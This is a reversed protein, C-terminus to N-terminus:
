VDAPAPQPSLRADRGRRAATSGGVAAAPAAPGGAHARLALRERLPAGRLLADGLRPAALPSAVPRRARRDALRLRRRAGPAARRVPRHRHADPPRRALPLRRPPRARRPPARDGGR